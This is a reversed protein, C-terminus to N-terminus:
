EEEWFDEPLKRMHPTYRSIAIPEITTGGPVGVIWKVWVIDDEISTINGSVVVLSRPYRYLVQDGPEYDGIKM